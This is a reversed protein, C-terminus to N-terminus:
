FKSAMGIIYKNSFIYIYKLIQHPATTNAIYRYCNFIFHAGQLIAAPLTVNGNHKSTTIFVAIDYFSYFFIHAHSHCVFTIPNVNSIVPQINSIDFWFFSSLIMSM